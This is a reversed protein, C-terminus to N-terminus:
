PLSPCSICQVLSPFTHMRFPLMTVPSPHPPTELGSGNLFPLSLPKLLTHVQKAALASNFPLQICPSNIQLCTLVNSHLHPLLASPPKLPAHFLLSFDPLLPCKFHLSRPCQLYAHGCAWTHRSFGKPFNFSSERSTSLDQFDSGPMHSPRGPALHPLLLTFLVTLQPQSWTHGHPCCLSCSPATLIVHVDCLNFNKFNSPSIIFQFNCHPFPPPPPLVVIREGFESTLKFFYYLFVFLCFSCLLEVRGQSPSPFSPTRLVHFVLLGM